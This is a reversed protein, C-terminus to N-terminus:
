DEKWEKKNELEFFKKYIAEINELVEKRNNASLLFGSTSRSSIEAKMIEVTATLISMDIKTNEV